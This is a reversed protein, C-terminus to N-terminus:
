PRQESDPVDLQEPDLQEPDLQEPRWLAALLFTTLAGVPWGVVAWPSRLRLYLQVTGRATRDHLLAQVHARGPRVGVVAAVKAALLGGVFLGLVTWPGARRAMLWGLVGSLVGAGAVVLLFSGDGGIFAKGELGHAAPGDPGLTVSLRPAVVSWLLGAPAALLLCGFTVLVAIVAERRWRSPQEPRHGPGAGDAAQADVAAHTM